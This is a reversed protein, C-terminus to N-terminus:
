GGLYAERVHDDELLAKAENEMVIQGLEMIYARTALNLAMFANQEVLLIGMGLQENIQKLKDFIEEVVVPALGLSPEDLLLLQPRSMLGRGIALMQQEGGSLSWGFQKRRESLRPFLQFIRDMEQEVAKGGGRKRWPASGVELNEYVTLGPFIHRGEPVHAMGLRVIREARQREIRTGALEIEGSSARLLGSLVKMLTSKGAGNAGVLAVIEGDQVKLSVDTLAQVKGYAANLRSCTLM